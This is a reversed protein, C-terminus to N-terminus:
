CEVGWDSSMWCARGLADCKGSSSSSKYGKMESSQVVIIDEM